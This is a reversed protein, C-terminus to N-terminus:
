VKYTFFLGEHVPIVNLTLDLVKACLINVKPLLLYYTEPKLRAMKDDPSARSGRM